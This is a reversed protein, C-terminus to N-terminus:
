NNKHPTTVTTTINTHPTTSAVTLPSFENNVLENPMVFKSSIYTSFIIKISQLKGVLSLEIMIKMKEM